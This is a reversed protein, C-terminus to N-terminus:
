DMHNRLATINLGNSYAYENFDRLHTLYSWAQYSPHQEDHIGKGVRTRVHEGLDSFEIETWQKLEIISIAENGVEDTGGIMFDIRFRRGNLRYEVAVAADDPIDSKDLLHFMANGLSNRWSKYEAQGVKMHLHKFVADRVKDEINPADLLFQKKSAVYALV